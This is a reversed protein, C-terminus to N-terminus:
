LIDSFFTIRHGFVSLFPKYKSFFDMKDVNLCKFSSSVRRIKKSVGQVDLSDHKYTKSQSIKSNRIATTASLQSRDPLFKPFIM